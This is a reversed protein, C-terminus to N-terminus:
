SMPAAKIIDITLATVTKMDEDSPTYDVWEKKDEDYFIDGCARSIADGITPTLNFDKTIYERESVLEDGVWEALKIETELVVEFRIPFSINDIVATLQGSACDDYKELYDDDTMIEVIIRPQSKAAEKVEALILEPKPEIIFGTERSPDAIAERLAAKIPVIDQETLTYKVQTYSWGNTLSIKAHAVELKQLEGTKIFDEVVAEFEIDLSFHKESEEFGKINSLIVCLLGKAVGDEVKLHYSSTAAPMFLVARRKTTLSTSM